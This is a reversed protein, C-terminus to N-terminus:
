RATYLAHGACYRDCDATRTHIDPCHGLDVDLEPKEADTGNDDHLSPWHDHPIGSM